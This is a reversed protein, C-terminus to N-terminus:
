TEKRFECIEEGTSNRCAEYRGQMQPVQASAANKILSHVRAYVVTIVLTNEIHSM